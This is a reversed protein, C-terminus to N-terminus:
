TLLIYANFRALCIRLVEGGGGVGEEVSCVCLRTMVHLNNPVIIADLNEGVVIKITESYFSGVVM